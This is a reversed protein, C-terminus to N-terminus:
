ESVGCGHLYCQGHDETKNNQYGAHMFIASDMTKLRIIRIDRVWLHGHDETKNIQYGEDTFIASDM